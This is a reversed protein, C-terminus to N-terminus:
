QAAPARPPTVGTGAAVTVSRFRAAPNAVSGEPITLGSRSRNAVHDDRSRLARPAHPGLRSPTRPFADIREGLLRYYEFRLRSPLDDPSARYLSGFVRYRLMPFWTTHRGAHHLPGRESAQTIRLTRGMFRMSRTTTSSHTPWSDGSKPCSHWCKPSRGTLNTNRALSCGPIGSMSIRSLSISAREASSVCSRTSCLRAMRRPKRDNTWVGFDPRVSRRRACTDAGSLFGEQRWDRCHPVVVQMLRAGFRLGNRFTQVAEKRRMLQLLKACLAAADAGM